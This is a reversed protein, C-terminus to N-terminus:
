GVILSKYQEAVNDWSHNQTVWNRGSLGMQIRKEPDKYLNLIAAAVLDSNKEDVQVGFSPQILEDFPPSDSTIAPLSSSLAELTSISSAEGTSLAMMLDAACFYSEVDRKFGTLHVRASLQLEDILKELNNRYEGDGVVLYHLHPIQPVLKPMAQIVWQMGKREEFAAVSILVFGDEPIRYETRIQMRKQIDPKFRLTDVGHGIVRCTRGSWQEVENATAQSVAILHSAYKQFNWREFESYRHPVQSQPFHFVISFPITKFMRSFYLAAGEGYGAFHVFVHDYHNKLLWYIFFPLGLYAQFYRVAPVKHLTIGSVRAYDPVPLEGDWTLIDVQVGQKALAVVLNWLYVEIGRQLRLQFPHIFAWNGKGTKSQKNM